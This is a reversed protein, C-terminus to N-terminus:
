YAKGSRAFIQMQSAIPVATMAIGSYRSLLECLASPVALCFIMLLQSLKCEVCSTGPRVQLYSHKIADVIIQEVDGQSAFPVLSALMDVRMVSYVQVVWEQIEPSSDKDSVHCCLM